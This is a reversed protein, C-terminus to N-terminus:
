SNWPAPATPVFKCCERLQDEEGGPSEPMIIEMKCRLFKLNQSGLARELVVALGQFLLLGEFGLEKCGLAQAWIWWATGPADTHM